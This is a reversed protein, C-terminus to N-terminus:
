GPSPTGCRERGAEIRRLLNVFWGFYPISDHSAAEFRVSIPETNSDTNGDGGDVVVHLVLGTTGSLMGTFGGARDADATLDLSEVVADRVASPSAAFATELRRRVHPM